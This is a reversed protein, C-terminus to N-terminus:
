DLKNEINEKGDLCEGYKIVIINYKTCKMGGTKYCGDSPSLFDLYECKGPSCTKKM